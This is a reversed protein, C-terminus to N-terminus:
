LKDLTDLNDLVIGLSARKNGLYKNIVKILFSKFTLICRNNNKKNGALLFHEQILLINKMDKVNERGFIMTFYNM